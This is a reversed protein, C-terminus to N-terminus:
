VGYCHTSNERGDYLDDKDPRSCPIRCAFPRLTGFEIRRISADSGIWYSVDAYDAVVSCACVCAICRACVLKESTSQGSDVICVWHVSGRSDTWIQPCLAANGSLIGCVRGALTATQMRPLVTRTPAYEAVGLLAKGAVALVSEGQEQETAPVSLILQVGTHAALRMWDELVTRIAVDDGSRSVILVDRESLLSSYRHLFSEFSDTHCCYVM